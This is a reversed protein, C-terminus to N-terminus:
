FRGSFTRPTLNKKFDSKNVFNSITKDSGAGSLWDEGAVGFATYLSLLQLKENM